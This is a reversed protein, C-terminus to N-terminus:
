AVEGTAQRFATLDERIRDGMGGHELMGTTEAWELCSFVARAAEVFAAPDPINALANVCDSQRKWFQIQEDTLEM